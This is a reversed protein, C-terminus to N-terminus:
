PAKVGNECSDSKKVSAISDRDAGFMQKRQAKKEESSTLPQDFRAARIEEPDTLIVAETRDTTEAM